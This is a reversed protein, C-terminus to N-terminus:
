DWEDKVDLKVPDDPFHEDCFDWIRDIVYSVPAICIIAPVALLIFIRVMIRAFALKPHDNVYDETIEYRQFLMSLGKIIGVELGMDATLYACSLLIKSTLNGM